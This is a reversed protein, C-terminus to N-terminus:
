CWHRIPICSFSGTAKLWHAPSCAHHTGLISVHQSPHRLCFRCSSHASRHPLPLLVSQRLYLFLTTPIGALIVAVLPSEHFIIPIAASLCSNASNAMRANSNVCPTLLHLQDSRLLSYYCSGSHTDQEPFETILVHKGSILCFGLTLNKLTNVGATEKESGQEQRLILSCPLWAFKM